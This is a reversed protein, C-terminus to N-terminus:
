WYDNVMSILCVRPSRGLARGDTRKGQIMIRTQPLKRFCIRAGATM